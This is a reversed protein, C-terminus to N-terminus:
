SNVFGICCYFLLVISCCYSVLYYVRFGWMRQCLACDLVLGEVCELFVAYGGVVDVFELVRAVVGDFGDRV